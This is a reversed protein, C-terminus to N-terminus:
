YWWCHVLQRVVKCEKKGVWVTVDHRNKRKIKVTKWGILCLRLWPLACSVLCKQIAKWVILKGSVKIKGLLLKKYESVPLPNAPLLKRALVSVSILTSMAFPEYDTNRWKSHLQWAQSCWSTYKCIICLVRWGSWMRSLMSVSQFAM